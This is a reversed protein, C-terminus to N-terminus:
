RYIFLMINSNVPKKADTLEVITLHTDAIAVQPTTNIALVMKGRGIDTLTEVPGVLYLSM